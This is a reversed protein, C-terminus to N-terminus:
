KVTLNTIVEKEFKWGGALNPNYILRSLKVNEFSCDGILTTNAPITMLVLNEEFEDCGSCGEAYQLGFNFRLNKSESTTNEIKLFTYHLPKQGEAISCEERHVSFIVGSREEIKNWEVSQNTNQGYLSASLIVFFFITLLHKNFNM